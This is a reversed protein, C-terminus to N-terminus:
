FPMSRRRRTKELVQAAYSRGAAKELTLGMLEAITPAVDRMQMPPLSKPTIGQGWVAFLCNEAPHGPGFGHTAKERKAEDLADTFVVGPAGEVALPVEPVCGMRMLAEKRYVRSIGLTDGHEELFAAARELGEKGEDGAFLYASMGNSQVRACDGLGNMRLMEGLDVPTTIDGQGHDSVLVFLADPMATQVAHLLSGVRREMRELAALAEESETGFHHRMEDVDVMHLAMFDPQKRGIVDCALLCGYDSLDPEKTSKRLRGLRMETDLIWLPTGYKLMKLVQNEGPLALVEPFNWRIAGDGHHVLGRREEGTVPYLISACKGGAESVAQFLTKARIARRDWYWRRMKEPVGPQFPQNQGIGHQDPDVGTILTTHAPYTLAPFVTKVQSCVASKRLIERINGTFRPLDADFVADLSILVAKRM